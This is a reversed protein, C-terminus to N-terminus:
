SRKGTRRWYRATVGALGTGLLLLTAPEPVPANPQFNYTISQFSFLRRDLGKDFYSSLHLTAMGNGRLMSSFIPDGPNSVFPNSTYGGLLGDFEFPASIEVVSLEVFPVQVAGRFEITGTYYLQPYSTGAVVAPGNGLTLEGAFRSLLSVTSGARCPSCFTAATLGPNGGRNSVALNHGAFAFLPGASPGAVSLSGNTVMVADAHTESPNLLLTFIFLALFSKVIIKTDFMIKNIKTLFQGNSYQKGSFM